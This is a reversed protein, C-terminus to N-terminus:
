GGGNAAPDPACAPSGGNAEGPQNRREAAAIRAKERKRRMFEAGFAREAEYQNHAQCRLRLGEVTAKGGRAIPTVHDFELFHRAECRSGNAAVFTCQAQDREWVARRIPAPVYRSRRGGSTRRNGRQPQDSASRRGSGSAGIRRKEAEAILADLARDLLQAVDRSAVSHSLLAQARRLKDHTSKSIALRLLYREPRAQAPALGGASIASHGVRELALERRDGDVSTSGGEGGGEGGGGDVETLAVAFEGDVATLQLQDEAVQAPALQVAGPIARIMSRVPGADRVVEFRRALWAEIEAKRRHTAADVLEEANEPTLHPALLGVATLHLRGAAVAEFLLPFQRAARAAQIRKYAADDSLHLEDVCYAHMSPCGADRYLQRADVEAIHALLVATTRRDHDVLSVLSRLLVADSLHSLAYYDM